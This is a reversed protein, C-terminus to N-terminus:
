LFAASAAAAFNPRYASSELDHSREYQGNRWISGVHGQIIWHRRHPKLANGLKTRVDPNSMWCDVINIGYRFIIFMKVNVYPEGTQAM